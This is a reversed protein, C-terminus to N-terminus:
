KLKFIASGVVEGNIKIDVRYTGPGLASSSLNYVYQCSDIRFNSGTDASGTYVLEDVAGTTGGATRTLVITAPPLACTTCNATPTFKVPVVGRKVSFVSSGDPNIPQQVQASFTPTFAENTGTLNPYGNGLAYLVGNAVAVAPPRATPMPTQTTWTDTTPDYAENASTGYGGVFYLKCNIVGVGPASRPTPMSSAKRTWSDTVPDYADVSSDSGGTWYLIGNMAAAAGGERFPTVAAKTTWTDTAPNYAYVASQYRGGVVYIIGNIVDASPTDVAAPMSAKTTWTDTAPNYAEVTAQDYGPNCFGGGAIAYLIQNVAVVALQYRPTPMPAKTTWTDTAPDYAEVTSYPNCSVDGGGVAYVIGDISAAGAADSATPMPTKTTWTGGQALAQGTFAAATFGLLMTFILKTM